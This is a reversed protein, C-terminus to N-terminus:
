VQLTSMRKLLACTQSIVNSDREVLRPEGEERKVVVDAIDLNANVGLCRM